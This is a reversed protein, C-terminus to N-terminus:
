PVPIESSVMGSFTVVIPEFAKPFQVDSLVTYKLAVPQVIGDVVSPLSGLALPLLRAVAANLAEGAILRKTKPLLTVEIGAKM